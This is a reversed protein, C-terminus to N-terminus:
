TRALVIIGDEPASGVRAEVLREVEERAPGAPLEFVGEVTAERAGSRVRSAEAREGLLFAIAHVLLSKRAGTEGTIVNLGRGFDVQVDEFLAFGRVTLLRLM